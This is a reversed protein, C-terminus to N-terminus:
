TATVLGDLYKTSTSYNAVLISVPSLIFVSLKSV